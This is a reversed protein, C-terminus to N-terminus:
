FPVSDIYQNDLVPYRIRKLLQFRWSREMCIWGTFDDHRHNFTDVAAKGERSADPPAVLEYDGYQPNYKRYWAYVAGYLIRSYM